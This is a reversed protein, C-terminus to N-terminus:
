QSIVKAASLCLSDTGRWELDRDAPEVSAAVCLHPSAAAFVTRTLVVALREGQKNEADFEAQETLRKLQRIAAGIISRAALLQCVRAIGGRM